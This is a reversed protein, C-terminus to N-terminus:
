ARGSPLVTNYPLEAATGSGPETSRRAPPRPTMPGAAHRLLLYSVPRARVTAGPRNPPLRTSRVAAPAEPKSKSVAPLASRISLNHVIGPVPRQSPPTDFPSRTDPKPDLSGGVQPCFSWLKLSEKWRPEPTMGYWGGTREDTAPERSARM